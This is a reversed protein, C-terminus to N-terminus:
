RVASQEILLREDDPDSPHYLACLLARPHVFFQEGDIERVGVDSAGVFHTAIQWSPVNAQQDEKVDCRRLDISGFCRISEGSRRGYAAVGGVTCPSDLLLWGFSTVDERTNNKKKKEWVRTSWTGILSGGLIGGRVVGEVM